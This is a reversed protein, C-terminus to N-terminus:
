SYVRKSFELIFKNIEGVFVSNLTFMIFNLLRGSHVQEVDLFLEPCWTMFLECMRLLDIATELYTRTKRINLPSYNEKIEKLTIFLESNVDNLSNFFSNMFDQTVKNEANLLQMRLKYLFYPSSTKEIKDEYIIERFGNGKALRLINKTVHRLNINKGFSKMLMVILNEQAYEQGEFLKIFQNHQLLINLRVLYIEKLDPNAIRDDIFHRSIFQVLEVYFNNELEKNAGQPLMHMLGQLKSFNECVPMGTHTILQSDRKMTRLVEFPIQILYDPLIYVLDPTAQDIYNVLQMLWLSYKVMMERIFENQYVFRWNPLKFRLIKHMENYIESSKEIKGANTLDLLKRHSLYLQDLCLTYKELEPLIGNIFLMLLDKACMFTEKEEQTLRLGKFPALHDRLENELHTFSGGIRDMKMLSEDFDYGERMFLCHFPFCSVPKNFLSSEMFKTVCAFVNTIMYNNNLGAKNPRNHGPAQQPLTNKCALHHLFDKFRDFPSKLHGAFQTQRKRKDMLIATLKILYDQTFDFSAQSKQYSKMYKQAQELNGSVYEHFVPSLVLEWDTKSPLHLEYIHELDQFFTESNLFAFLYDDKSLIDLM